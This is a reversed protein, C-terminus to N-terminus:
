IFGDQKRIEILAILGLIIGAGIGSIVAFTFM